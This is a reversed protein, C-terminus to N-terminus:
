LEVLHKTEQPPSTIGDERHAITAAPMIHNDEKKVHSKTPQKTVVGEM